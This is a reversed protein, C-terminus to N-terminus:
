YKIKWVPARKELCASIGEIAEPSVRLSSIRQVFPEQGEDSRGAIDGIMDKAAAQAIPGGSLLADVLELVTVDLQEQECVEHVLGIALARRAPIREATLFYRHAQREGIAAMVYPGIISPILGLRVESTAFSATTAAVAIDCAAVLGMGGGLAPGHVRALTPKSLRALTALMASLARADQLNETKTYSAARRMWNLDAGASFSPGRGALVVVRVAADEGLMRLAQALEAILVDDFANHVEPRNMWLTAVPGQREIEITRYM